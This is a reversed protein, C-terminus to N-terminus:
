KDKLKEWAITIPTPDLAFEIRSTLECVPRKSFPNHKCSTKLCRVNKKPDCLYYTLQKTM